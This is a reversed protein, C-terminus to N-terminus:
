TMRSIGKQYEKNNLPMPKLMGKDMAMGLPIATSPLSNYVFFDDVKFGQNNVEVNQSTAIHEIKTDEQEAYSLKIADLGESPGTQAFHVM